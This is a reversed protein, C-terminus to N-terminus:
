DPCGVVQITKNLHRHEHDPPDTYRACTGAAFRVVSTGNQGRQEEWGQQSGKGARAYLKDLKRRHLAEPGPPAPLASAAEAELAKAQGRAFAKMTANIADNRAEDPTDKTNASPAPLATSATTATTQSVAAPPSDSRAPSQASRKNTIQGSPKRHDGQSAAVAARVPPTAREEMAKGQEPAPRVPLLRISMVNGTSQARDPAFPSRSKFPSLTQLGFLLVLHLALSLLSALVLRSKLM